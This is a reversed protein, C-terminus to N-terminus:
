GPGPGPGSGRSGGEKSGTPKEKEMEKQPCHEMHILVIYPELQLMSGNLCIRGSEDLVAHAVFVDKDCRDPALQFLLVVWEQDLGLTASAADHLLACGFCAM